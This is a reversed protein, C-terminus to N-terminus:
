NTLSFFHLHLGGEVGTRRRATADPIWGVAIGFDDFDAYSPSTTIALSRSLNQGVVSVVTLSAQVREAM